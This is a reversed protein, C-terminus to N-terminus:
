FPAEFGTSIRFPNYLTDLKLSSQMIIYKVVEFDKKKDSVYSSLFSQLERKLPKFYSSLLAGRYDTKKGGAVM